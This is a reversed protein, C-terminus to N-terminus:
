RAGGMPEEKVAPRGHRARNALAVEQLAAATDAVFRGSGRLVISSAGIALMTQTSADSLLGRLSTTAQRVDMGPLHVVTQILLAPHEVYLPLREPAVSMWSGPSPSMGRGLTAFVGMLTPETAALRGLFVRHAVLIGEVFAYVEEPAVEVDASLDVHTSRMAGSTTEGMALVLGTCAALETLVDSLKLDDSRKLVLSRTAPPLGDARLPDDALAGGPAGAFLSAALLFTAIM